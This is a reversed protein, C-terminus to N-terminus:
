DESENSDREMLMQKCYMLADALEQFLDMLADRGNHTQLYTGYKAKGVEARAKLDELVADLVVQRGEVPPKQPTSAFSISKYVRGDILDDEDAHIRISELVPNYPMRDLFHALKYPQTSDTDVGVVTYLRSGASSNKFAVVDGLEFKM